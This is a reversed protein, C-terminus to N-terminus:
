LVGGIAGGAAGKDELIGIVTFWQNQMKVQAGLPNDFYFVARKADRGLVCVRRSQEVNENTFFVGSNLRADLM